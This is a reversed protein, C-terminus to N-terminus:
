NRTEPESTPQSDITYRIIIYNWPQSLEHITKVLIVNNMKLKGNDIKWKGNEM